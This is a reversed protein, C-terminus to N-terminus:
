VMVVFQQVAWRHSEHTLLAAAQAGTVWLLEHGTESQSTRASVRAEYFASVKEFGTRKGGSRVMQVARGVLGGVTLVLGCEEIAERVVAQEASEGAEVGGGPLFHGARTRVLALMGDSNRILAYASPRIIYSCDPVREGFVPAESDTHM